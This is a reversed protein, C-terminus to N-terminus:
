GVESVIHLHNLALSHAMLFNVGISSITLEDEGYDGDIDDVESIPLGGVSSVSSDADVDSWWGVVLINSM